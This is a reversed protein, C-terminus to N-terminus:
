ESTLYTTFSVTLHRVLIDTSPAKGPARAFCAQISEKNKKKEKTRGRKRKSRPVRELEGLLEKVSFNLITWVWHM